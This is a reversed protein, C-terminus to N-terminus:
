ERVRVALKRANAYATEAPAVLNHAHYHMAINGYANALEADSPKGAAIADFQSRAELLATRVSPELAATDPVPVDALDRKTGGCAAILFAALCVAILWVRTALM